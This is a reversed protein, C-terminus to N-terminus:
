IGICNYRSFYVGKEITHNTQTSVVKIDIMISRMPATEVHGDMGQTIPVPLLDVILIISKFIEFNEPRYSKNTFQKRSKMFM